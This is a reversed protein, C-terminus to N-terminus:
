DRPVGTVVQVIIAGGEGSGKLETPLVKGILGMFSQPNRKAQETLYGLAGDKHAADMAALITEKLQGSVKNPVGKPRGGGKRLNALSRAKGTAFEADSTVDTVKPIKGVTKTAM